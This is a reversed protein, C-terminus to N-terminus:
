ADPEVPLDGAGNIELDDLRMEEISCFGLMWLGCQIFGIWQQAIILQDQDNVFNKVQQCCWALHAEVAKNDKPTNYLVLHEDMKKPACRGRVLMEYYKNALKVIKEAKV